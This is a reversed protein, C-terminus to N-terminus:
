LRGAAADIAERGTLGQEFLAEAFLPCTRPEARLEDGHQEWCELMQERVEPLPWQDRQDLPLDCINGFATHFWDWGSHLQELHDNSWERRGHYRSRRLRPM